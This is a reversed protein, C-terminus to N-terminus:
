KILINRVPFRATAAPPFQNEHFGANWCGTFPKGIGSHIKRFRFGRHRQYLPGPPFEVDINKLNNKVPGKSCWVSKERCNVIGPSKLKAGSLHYQGTLSMKDAILEKPTGAFVVGGRMGAALCTWLLILLVRITEEDHEVVLVTNGLDILTELLRQNDRQNLGISPEDLVYLM